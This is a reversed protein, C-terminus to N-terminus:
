HLSADNRATKWAEIKAVVQEVAAAPEAAVAEFHQTFAHSDALVAGCSCRFLHGSSGWPAVKPDAAGLQQLRSLLAPVRDAPEASQQAAAPPAPTAQNATTSAAPTIGADTTANAAPVPSLLSAGPAMSLPPTAPATTPLQPKTNAFAPATGRADAVRPSTEDPKQWNKWATDAMDIVKMVGSKVQEASPGYLNWGKVVIVGVVFMVTVRYITQFSPM